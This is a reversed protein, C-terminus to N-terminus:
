LGAGFRDWLKDPDDLLVGVFYKGRIHRCYRVVGCLERVRGRISVRTGVAIPQEVSIGVGSPSRDELLGMLKVLAGEEDV